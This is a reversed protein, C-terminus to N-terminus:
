IIVDGLSSTNKRLNRNIYIDKKGSKPLNIKLCSWGVLEQINRLGSTATWRKRSAVYVHFTFRLFNSPNGQVLM